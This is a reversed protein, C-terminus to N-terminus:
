TATGYVHCKGRRTSWKPRLFWISSRFSKSTNRLLIQSMAFYLRPPFGSRIWPVIKNLDTQKSLPYFTSSLDPWELDLYARIRLVVWRPAFWGCESQHRNLQTLYWPFLAAFWPRRFVYIRVEGPDSTDQTFRVVSFPCRQSNSALCPWMISPAVRRVIYRM